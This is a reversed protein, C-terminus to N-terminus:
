TDIMAEAFRKLWQAADLAERTKLRLTTTNTVLQSVGKAVDGGLGLHACLKQAVAEQKKKYFLLTQPLGSSQIHSPLKRIHSLLEEDKTQGSRQLEGVVSFAWTAHGSSATKIAAM